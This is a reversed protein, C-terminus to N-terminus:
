YYIEIILDDCKSFYRLMMDLIIDKDLGGLGCGLMPFAISKINKDKYTSAFKKLGDEIYEYRSSDKYHYKTPFNLICRETDEDIMYKYLWLKGISILNKSCLDKYTNFMNPHLTKFDLALGSGMVGVCNIPNVLTQCESSFIDGNKIITITVMKRM